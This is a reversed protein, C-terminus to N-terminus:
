AADHPPAQREACSRGSDRSRSSSSGASVGPEGHRQLDSEERRGVRRRDPAQVHEVAGAHRHGDERGSLQERGHLPRSRVPRHLDQRVPGLLRGAGRVIAAGAAQRLRLRRAADHRRRAQGVRQSVQRARDDIGELQRLGRGEQRCLPRLGAPRGHSVHRHQRQPLRAGSRGGRRAASPVALCRAGPRAEGPAEHRRPCDLRSLPRIASVGHSNGIIPDADWGASYRIGRFRGGGAAIQAELVAAVRDGLALDAFGVIGRCIRAPGYRGSDSMAAVGAVFEVEGVPKMEEPGRSRYM